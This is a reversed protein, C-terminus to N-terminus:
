VETSAMSIQMRDSDWRWPTHNGHLHVGGYWEDVGVESIRDANGLRVHNGLDTLTIKCEGFSAPSGKYSPFAQLGEAQLLPKPGQTLQALCHWYQLDGMGLGHLKGGVQDFLEFPLHVGGAILEMTTQEVIGLGNHTSPLRSLHTLFADRAFPLASTDSRLLRYLTRPDDSAYAEWLASGVLLQEQTVPKQKGALTRLQEVSLQGLGRFLPIGPYEGICLMSLKAAPFSRKALLHLLYCLMAQDFLDHEFWLVVEEHKHCEDLVREQAECTRIYEASPIGMAKELYRARMSRNASDTMDAFVPGESYIERWVLIGGQVVGQRLRDGVSDGNVIHLM